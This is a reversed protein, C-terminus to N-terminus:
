NPKFKFVSMFATFKHENYANFGASKFVSIWTKKSFFHTFGVSFALFNPFDRLHEVLIVQGNDKLVRKCEKLFMIKESNSRIEHAASLLFITDISNNEVPFKTSKIATTNPFIVSAKRARIIAKETHQKPNYFDFVKINALPFKKKLIFSTEDFGANINIINKTNINNLKNLWEFNYYKSFDYVYASIILPMILGYIVSLIIIWFLMNHWNILLKSLSILTLVILGIIYFHRNFSLINLVGQFQKRNTEM